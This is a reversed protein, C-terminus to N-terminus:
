YMGRLLRVPEAFLADHQLRQPEFCELALTLFNSFRVPQLQDTVRVSQASLGRLVSRCIWTRNIDLSRQAFFVTRAHLKTLQLLCSTRLSSCAHQSTNHSHVTKCLCKLLAYHYLKTGALFCNKCGVLMEHYRARGINGALAPRLPTPRQRGDCLLECDSCSDNNLSQGCLSNWQLWLLAYVCLSLRRVIITRVPPQGALSCPVKVQLCTVAVVRCYLLQCDSRDVASHALSESNLRSPHDATTSV